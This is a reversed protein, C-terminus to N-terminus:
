DQNVVLGVDPRARLVSLRKDAPVRLVLVQSDKVAEAGFAAQLYGPVAPM